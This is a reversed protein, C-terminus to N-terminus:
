YRILPMTQVAPRLGAESCLSPTLYAELARASFRREVIIRRSQHPNYQCLRLVLKLLLLGLSPEKGVKWSFPFYTGRGSARPPAVSLLRRVKDLSESLKSKTVQLIFVPFYKFGSFQNVPIESNSNLIRM